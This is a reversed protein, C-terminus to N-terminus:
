RDNHAPIWEITINSPTTNIINKLYNNYAIKSPKKKEIAKISALSDTYIVIDNKNRHAMLIAEDIANMEATFIQILYVQASQKQAIQSATHQLIISRLVM